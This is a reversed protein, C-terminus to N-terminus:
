CTPNEEVENTLVVGMVVAGGVVGVLEETPPPPPGITIPLKAAAVFDVVLQVGCVTLAVVVAAILVVGVEAAGVAEEEPKPKPKTAARGITLAPETATEVSAALLLGAPKKQAVFSSAIAKAPLREASSSSSSARAIKSCLKVALLSLTLPNKEEVEAGAALLAPKPKEPHPAAWCCKLAVVTVPM